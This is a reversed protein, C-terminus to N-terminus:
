LNGLQLIVVFLYFRQSNPGKRLAPFFNLSYKLKLFEWIDCFDNTKLHYSTVVIIKKCPM